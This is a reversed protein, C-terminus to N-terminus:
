KVTVKIEQFTNLQRDSARARLVYEGPATFTVTTTAKTDRVPSPGFTAAAPGRWVIWVLTPGAPPAGGRGRGGGGRGTAVAPVNVPAQDLDSKLIEPQEQGVAAKRPPQPKPLGDDTVTANITLTAPLSVTTPAQDITLTPPQNKPGTGSDRGDAVPDIEWEPQLWGYAKNTKGNATVTWILEQKQGWTKPINVHFAERNTRKYFFTPQGRDAPGPEFMNNAGVPVAIQEVWNRNLYGFHMDYSGDPRRSWGEFIPQVDQGKLFKYDNQIEVPQQSQAHLGQWAGVTLVVAAAAACWQKLSSM